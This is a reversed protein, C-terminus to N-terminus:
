AGLSTARQSKRAVVTMVDWLNMPVGIAGVRSAALLDAAKRIPAVNLMLCAKHGLYRLPFVSAPYTITVVDFGATELLRRMSPRSFFYNHHRPTLLHWRRLSIRALLACVDGTSLALVGGPRLLEWARTVDGRPDTSHEIYDWMTVCDWEGDGRVDSLTGTVLSLALNQEGWGTMTQSVDVGSANWGAQAAEDVFFGAACGADLIRGPRLHKQLMSLRRKANARHFEADDTYALYGQRDLAHEDSAIFYERGYLVDLDARSPMEGRFVLKCRTCRSILFGDKVLLGTVASPDGERCVNCIAIPRSGAVSTM